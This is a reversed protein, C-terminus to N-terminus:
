KMSMFELVLTELGSVRRLQTLCDIIKNRLVFIKLYSKGIKKEALDKFTIDFKPVSEIFSDFCLYSLQSLVLSDVENFDMADFTLFGNEKVYSIINGM